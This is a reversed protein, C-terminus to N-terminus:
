QKPTIVYETSSISGDSAYIVKKAVEYDGNLGLAKLAKEMNGAGEIKPLHGDTMHEALSSWIQQISQSLSDVRQALWAIDSQSVSATEAIDGYAAKIEVLPRSPELKSKVEALAANVGDFQEKFNM